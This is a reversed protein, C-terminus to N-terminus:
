AKGGEPRAPAGVLEVAHRLETLGAILADADIDSRTTLFMKARAEVDRALPVVAAIGLLGAEGAIAHIDRMTVATGGHERRTAHEIARELRTRALALFEPLFQAYLDEM